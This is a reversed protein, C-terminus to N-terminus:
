KSRLEVENAWIFMEGGGNKLKLKILKSKGPEALVKKNDAGLDFDSKVLGSSVQMTLNAGTNKPLSVSVLRGPSVLSDVALQRLSAYDVNIDAAESRATVSGSINRLVIKSVWSKVFVNGKINSIELKKPARFEEQYSINSQQPVLIKYSYEAETNKKLYLSGNKEKIDLEASAPKGDKLSSILVEKGGYGIITIDSNKLNIVISGTASPTYSIKKSQASVSAVGAFMMLLLSIKKM